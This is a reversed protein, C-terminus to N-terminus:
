VPTVMSRKEPVAGLVCSSSLTHCIFNVFLSTLSGIEGARESRGWMDGSHVVRNRWTNGLSAWVM